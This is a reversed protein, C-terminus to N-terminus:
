DPETYNSVPEVSKEDPKTDEEVLENTEKRTWLM